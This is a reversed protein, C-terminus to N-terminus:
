LLPEPDLLSILKKQATRKKEKHTFSIVLENKEIKKRMKASQDGNDNLPGTPYLLIVKHKTEPVLEITENAAGSTNNLKSVPTTKIEETKVSFKKGSLWIYNINIYKSQSLTLYIWYNFTEIRETGGNEPTKPKVGPLSSQKFAYIKKVPCKVQSFATSMFFFVAILM